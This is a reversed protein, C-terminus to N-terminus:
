FCRKDKVKLCEKECKYCIENKLFGGDFYEKINDLTTDAINALAEKTFFGQHSTVLVNPFTLLRALVDDGIVANSFDEFFYESEEEYVDLGASGIGGSKLGAILAETKILKGRGTNIIMVGEKMRKISEENILHHTEPSLPCHLSIIDACAYLENLEVYKFGKKDAYSEDRLKDYAIVKMGFGLAIDIFCKGIKGIGVVGITKKYMDFGLFGNISFNGDRTRYYARHTKRNLTLMLAAAHEAVAYPSYAPVRAVHINGYAARLDVNNYGASRLAIMGINNEKFVSIVDANVADNVFACVVDSGKALRATDPNLHGAFYQIDYGFKENAKNFFDKDYPKADYFFIKKKSM